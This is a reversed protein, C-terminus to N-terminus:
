KKMLNEIQDLLKQFHDIAKEVPEPSSMDVGAKTLSDLPYNRCGSCLFDLYRQREAKGGGTVMDALTVAASIGTAYKYVYFARYFHPIRLGELDAEEPLQVEPGFYAELLRRYESRFLELTLPTGSEGLVHINKEFEAFMTQRFATAVFDDAEKGALYLMMDPNDQYKHMLHRALLQENFTSATEAEFITYDYNPFVNSKVSYYSHMSHGGEHVLTFLDRLRDEKYNLLIYPYGTYCGASFAGSRKGKNEYKDVWGGTLGQRLIACYEEGLPAVAQIVEDVAQDYTHRVEVASTFPMYVDYHSLKDLGLAKRKLQYYRHLVPFFRHMTEILNDYVSIPVNDPFLAAELASAYNRARANFIDLHVNGAYLAAITNKHKEFGKYFQQYAKQRVTRDQSQLFSTFTSQTLPKEIGNETITGFEMDVDTLASFAKHATMDSESHLALLKEEQEPLVHPKLRLLKSLYIQYDALLPSKLFQAMKADEISQIEPVLYSTEAEARTASSIYLGYRKQNQPSSGDTSFQLMAYSGTKEALIQFDTMTKLCQALNEASKGLTGKFQSLAPIMSNMDSLAKEWESESAFLSSLDWKDSEAIQDRTRIETSSM